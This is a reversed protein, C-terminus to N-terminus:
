FGCPETYDQSRQTWAGMPASEDIFCNTAVVKCPRTRWCDMNKSHCNTFAYWDEDFQENYFRSSKCGRPFDEVLYEVGCKQNPPKGTITNGMCTTIDTKCPGTSEKVQECDCGPPCHPGYGASAMVLHVMGFTLGGVTLVLVFPRSKM